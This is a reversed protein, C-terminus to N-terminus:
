DKWEDGDEKTESSEIGNLDDNRMRWCYNVDQVIQKANGYACAAVLRGDADYIVASVPNCKRTPQLRWPFKGPTRLFEQNSM